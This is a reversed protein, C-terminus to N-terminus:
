GTARERRTWERTPRVQSSARGDAACLDRFRQDDRTVPWYGTFPCKEVVYVYFNPNHEAEEVQRTELWLDNGRCTRGAAKVEIVRPPSEVDGASGAYRTDEALRGAARELEIVWKIATDEIAKNGTLAAV